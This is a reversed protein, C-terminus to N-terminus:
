AGRTEDTHRLRRPRGQGGFLGPHGPQLGLQLLEDGEGMVQLREGVAHDRGELLELPIRAPQPLHSQPTDQVECELPRRVEDCAMVLFHAQKRKCGPLELM